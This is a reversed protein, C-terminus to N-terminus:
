SIKCTLSRADSSFLGVRVLKAPRLAASIGSVPNYRFTFGSKDPFQINVISFQLNTTESESAYASYSRRAPPKARDKWNLDISNSLYEIQSHCLDQAFM